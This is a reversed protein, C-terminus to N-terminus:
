ARHEPKPQLPACNPLLLLLRHSGMKSPSTALRYGRGGSSCKLLKLSAALCPSRRTCTTADPKKCPPPRPCSAVRKMRRKRRTKARAAATLSSARADCPARCSGACRALPQTTTSRDHTMATRTASRGSAPSSSACSGAHMCRTLALQSCAIPPVNVCQELIEPEDWYGVPKRVGLLRLQAAVTSCGGAREMAMILDNRGLRRLETLPPMYLSRVFAAHTVPHVRRLTVVCRTGTPDSKPRKLYPELESRLWDLLREADGADLLGIPPLVRLSRSRTDVAPVLAPALPFFFEWRYERRRPSAAPASLLAVPPPTFGVCGTGEVRLLTSEASSTSGAGWDGFGALANLLQEEDTAAASEGSAKFVVEGGAVTLVERVTGLRKGSEAHVMAFGLLVGAGGQEALFEELSPPLCRDRDRGGSSRKRRASSGASAVCVTVVRPVFVPVAARRSSGSLPAQATRRVAAAPFCHLRAPAVARAVASM